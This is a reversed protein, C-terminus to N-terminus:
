QKSAETTGVTGRKRQLKVYINLVITRPADSAREPPQIDCRRACVRFFLKGLRDMTIRWFGLRYYPGQYKNKPWNNILNFLRYSGDMCLRYKLNTRVISCSPLCLSELRWHIYAVVGYSVTNLPYPLPAWAGQGSRSVGNLESFYRIPENCKCTMQMLKM